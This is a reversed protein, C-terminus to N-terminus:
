VYLADFGCLSAADFLRRDSTLFTRGSTQDNCWRLAASLQFADGARLDYREVIQHARTRISSAPEIVAWSTGLDSAFRHAMAADSTSIQSMRLLRAIASAIEVPTAWWVVTDYRRYLLRAQATKSQQVCLPVLASADWFAVTAVVAGGARGGM